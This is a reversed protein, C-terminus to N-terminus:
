WTRSNKSRSLSTTLVHDLTSTVYLVFLLYLVSSVRALTISGRCSFVPRQPKRGPRVCVPRYLKMFLRSSQFKPKLFFLSQVIRTAFVFASILKETNSRLQYAGKNECLCFDPKRVIRSMHFLNLMFQSAATRLKCFHIMPRPHTLM